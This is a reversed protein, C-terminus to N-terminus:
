YRSGIVLDADSAAALLRPLDGPDHSFDADMQAVLEAGGRLAAQFGAVYAPGIGLKAPRLLVRVGPDAAALSDAVDGTGDPSADDVILITSGEPLRERAAAVLPGLNEAENYTPIVLWVQPGAMRRHYEHLRHSVGLDGVRQALEGGQVLQVAGDAIADEGVALRRPHDALARDGDGLQRALAPHRLQGPDALRELLLDQGQQLRARDGGGLLQLPLERRRQDLHRPDGAEAGPRRAAEVVLEPDRAELVQALRRGGPPDALQPPHPRLDLLVDEGAEIAQRRLPRRLPAQQGVHERDGLLQRGGEALVRGRVRHRNRAGHPPH